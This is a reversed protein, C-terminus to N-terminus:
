IQGWVVSDRINTQYASWDQDLEHKEERFLQSKEAHAHISSNWNIIVLLPFM